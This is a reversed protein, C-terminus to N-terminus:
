VCGHIPWIQTDQRDRRDHVPQIDYIPCVHCLSLCVATRNCLAFWKVFPLGFM